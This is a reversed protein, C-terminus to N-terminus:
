LIVIMVKKVAPIIQTNKKQCNLNALSEDQLKLYLNGFYGGVGGYQIELIVVREQHEEEDQSFHNLVGTNFSMPPQYDDEVPPDFTM